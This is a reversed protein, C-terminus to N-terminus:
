NDIFIRFITSLITSNKQKFYETKCNSCAWDPSKETICCGGIVLKEQELLKFAEETPMGYLIKVVTTKGCKHCKNPKRPVKIPKM